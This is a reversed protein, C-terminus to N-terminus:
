LPDLASHLAASIYENVDELTKLQLSRKRLARIEEAMEEDVEGFPSKELWCPAHIHHKIYAIVLKLQEEDPTQKLYAMVASEMRGTVDDRWNLPTGQVPGRPVYNSPHTPFELNLTKFM